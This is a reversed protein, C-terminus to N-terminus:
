TAPIPHVDTSNPEAAIRADQSSTVDPPDGVDDQYSGLEADMRIEVFSPTEWRM